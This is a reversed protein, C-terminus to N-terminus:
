DWRMEARLNAMVVSSAGIEVYTKMIRDAYALQTYSPNSNSYPIVRIIASSEYKVPILEHGVLAVIFTTLATALIVWKRRNLIRLYEIFEM